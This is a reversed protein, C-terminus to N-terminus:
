ISDISAAAQAFTERLQMFAVIKDDIRQLLMQSLTQDGPTRSTANCIESIATVMSSPLGEIGTVNTASPVYESIDYMFARSGNSAAKFKLMGSDRMKKMLQGARPESLGVGHGVKRSSITCFGTAPEDRQTVMFNIIDRMRDAEVRM